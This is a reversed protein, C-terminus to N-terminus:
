NNMIILNNVESSTEKFINKKNKINNNKIRLGM